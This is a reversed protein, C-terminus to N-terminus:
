DDKSDLKNDIENIISETVNLIMKQDEESLDGMKDFLMAYKDLIPSDHEKFIKQKSNDNLDMPVDYGMLWAENTHLIEAILSLNNEKANSIGALYKSILSKSIKTKNSLEIPKMNNKDLAKQLRVAFSEVKM